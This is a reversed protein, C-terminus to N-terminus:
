VVGVPQEFDVQDMGHREDLEGAEDTAIGVARVRCDLLHFGVVVITTAGLDIDETRAGEVEADIALHEAVGTKMHAVEMTDYM